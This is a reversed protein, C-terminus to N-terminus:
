KDKKHFPNLYYFFRGWKILFNGLREINFQQSIDRMLQGDGPGMVGFFPIGILFALIIGILMLLGILAIGLNNQMTIHELVPELPYFFILLFVITLHPISNLIRFSLHVKLFKKVTILIYPLVFIGTIIMALGAGIFGFYFVFIPTLIFTAILTIGFGLASYKAHGSGILANGFM